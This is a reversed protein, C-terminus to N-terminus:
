VSMFHRQNIQYVFFTICKIVVCDIHVAFAANWM